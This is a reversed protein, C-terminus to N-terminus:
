RGGRVDAIWPGLGFSRAYGPVLCRITSVLGTPQQLAETRVAGLAGLVKKPDVSSLGRTIATVAVLIVSLVLVM